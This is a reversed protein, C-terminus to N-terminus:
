NIASFSLWHPATKLLALWNLILTFPYFGTLSPRPLYSSNPRLLPVSSIMWSLLSTRAFRQLLGQRLKLVFDTNTQVPLKHNLINKCHNTRYMWLYILENHITCLLAHMIYLNRFVSVYNLHILEYNCTYHIGQTFKKLIIIQLAM